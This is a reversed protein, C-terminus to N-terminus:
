LNEKKANICNPNLCSTYMGAHYHYGPIVWEGGQGVSRWVSEPHDEVSRQCIIVPQSSKDTVLADNDTVNDTVSTVNLKDTVLPASNRNATVRCVASCYKADARKAEFGNGCETCTKM